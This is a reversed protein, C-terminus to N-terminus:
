GLERQRYCSAIHWRPEGARAPRKRELAADDGGIRHRWRRARCCTFVSLPMVAATQASRAASCRSCRRWPRRRRRRTTWSTPRTSRWLLAGALRAACTSTGSTWPGFAVRRYRGGIALFSPMRRRRLLGADARTRRRRRQLGPTGGPRAAAASQPYIVLAHRWAAGRRQRRGAAASNDAAPQRELLGAVGGGGHCNVRRTQTPGPELAEALGDPHRLDLEAALCAGPSRAMRRHHHRGPAIRHAVFAKRGPPRRSDALEVPCITTRGAHDLLRAGAPTPSSCRTPLESQGRCGALAPWCWRSAQLQASCCMSPQAAPPM